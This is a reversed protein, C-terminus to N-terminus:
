RCVKDDIYIRMCAGNVYGSYYINGSSDIKQVFVDPFHKIYYSSATIIQDKSISKANEKSIFRAIGVIGIGVITVILISALFEGIFKLRWKDARSVVSPLM